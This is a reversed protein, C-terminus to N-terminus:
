RHHDGAALLALDVLAIAAAVATSFLGLSTRDVRIAEVAREREVLHGLTVYGNDVPPAVVNL